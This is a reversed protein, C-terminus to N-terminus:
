AHHEGRADDLVARLEYAAGGHTRLVAWQGALRRAATLQQDAHTVESRAANLDSRLQDIAGELERIRMAKALNERGRRKSEDGLRRTRERLVDAIRAARAHQVRSHRARERASLWAARYRDTATHAQEADALETEIAERLMRKEGDLLLTRQMRTLLHLLPERRSWRAAQGDVAHCPAGPRHVIGPASPEGCGCERGQTGTQPGTPADLTESNTRAGAPSEAARTPAEAPANSADADGRSVSVIPKWGTTADEVALVAAAVDDETVGSLGVTIEASMYDSM